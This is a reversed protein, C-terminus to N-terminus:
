SVNHEMWEFITFLKDDLRKIQQISYNKTSFHKKFVNQVIVYESLNPDDTKTMIGLIPIDKGELMELLSSFMLKVPNLASSITLADFCIIIGDSKEICEKWEQHHTFLGNTDLFIYEKNHIVVSKISIGITEIPPLSPDYEGALYDIISTKGTGPLGLVTITIREYSDAASISPSCGM